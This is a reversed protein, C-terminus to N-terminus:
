NRAVCIFSTCDSPTSRGTSSRKWSRCRSPCDEAPESASSAAGIASLRRRTVRGGLVYEIGLIGATAGLKIGSGRSGFRGDPGALMPNLERMGYSSAVDLAQSAVVPALSIKWKRLSIQDAARRAASEISLPQIVPSLDAASAASSFLLM